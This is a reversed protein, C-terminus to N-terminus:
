LAQTELTSLFMGGNQLWCGAAMLGSRSVKASSLASGILLSPQVRMFKIHCRDLPMALTMILGFHHWWFATSAQELSSILPTIHFHDQFLYSEM